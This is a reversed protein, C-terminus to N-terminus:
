RTRLAPSRVAARACRPRGLLRTCPRSRAWPPMSHEDVVVVDILDVGATVGGPCALDTVALHLDHRDVV